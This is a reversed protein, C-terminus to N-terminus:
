LIPFIAASADPSTQYMGTVPFQLIQKIEFWDKKYWHTNNAHPLLLWM